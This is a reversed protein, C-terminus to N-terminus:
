GSGPAAKKRRSAKKKSASDPFLVFKLKLAFQSRSNAVRELADGDTDLDDIADDLSTWAAREVQKRWAISAALQAASNAAQSVAVLLDNFLPRLSEWFSSQARKVLRGYVDAKAKKKRHKRAESPHASKIANRIANAVADAREIESQALGHSSSGWDFETPLSLVERQWEFFKMNLDTRLGYAVADILDDRRRWGNRLSEVFQTLVAPREFRLKGNGSQYDGKRLLLLPGTDRWVPREEQPRVIKVADSSLKYAANPDTWPFDVSFGVSFRMERILTESETASM